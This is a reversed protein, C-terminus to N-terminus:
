IAVIRPGSEAFGDRVYVVLSRHKKITEVSFALALILLGPRDDKNRVTKAANNYLLRPNQRDHRNMASKNLPRSGREHAILINRLSTPCYELTLTRQLAEGHSRCQM